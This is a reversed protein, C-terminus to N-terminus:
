NFQVSVTLVLHHMADFYPAVEGYVHARYPTGGPYRMAAGAKESRHAGFYRIDVGLPGHVWTLGLDWYTYDYELARKAAYHGLGASAGLTPTVPIRAIAQANVTAHSNGYADPAFAAVLTVTHRYHAYLYLEGYDLADPRLRQDYFYWQLEGSVTWNSTLAFGWGLYPNVELDASRTYDRDEIDVTSVWIGAYAGTQHTYEANVQAVAHHDSKSYGRWPYDTAVNLMVNVDATCNPARLGLLLIFAIGSFYVAARM